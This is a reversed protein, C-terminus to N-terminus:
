APEPSEGHEFRASRAARYAAQLRPTEHAFQPGGGIEDPLSGDGPDPISPCWGTLGHFKLIVQGCHRCDTWWSFGSKPARRQRQVAEPDPDFRFATPRLAAEWKFAETAHYMWGHENSWYPQPGWERFYADWTTMQSLGRGPQEVPGFYLYTRIGTGEALKSAKAIEGADPFQGKIEVWTELPTGPHILFDPLYPEGDLVYGQPEYRFDIGLHKFFVAWRAELRSRFRYGAYSTEIPAITTM